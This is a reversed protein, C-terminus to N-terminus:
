TKMLLYISGDIWKGMDKRIQSNRSAIIKFNHIKSLHELYSHSHSYRGSPRLEFPKESNEVSFVLLGNNELLKSSVKFFSNLNGLYIFVDAAIILDLKSELSTMIKNVDGTLLQDYLNKESAKKIMETSLDIGTIKDTSNKFAVACLGTGCGADLAHRFKKGPYIEKTLAALKNPINYQLNNVLDDEFSSAYLNFLNGVYEEPASDTNNGQIANLMHLASVNNPDYELSIEYHKIAHDKNGSLNYIGALNYHLFAEKPSLFCAKELMEAAEKLKGSKKFLLSLNNLIDVNHSDFEFAKTLYSEARRFNGLSKYISGMLNFIQPHKLYRYQKCVEKAEELKQNSILLAILNIAADAEVKISLSSKFGEIAKEECDTGMFCIARNYVAEYFSPKLSISRSYHKIAEELKNEIRYVEALNFYFDYRSPDINIVQQFLETALTYKKCDRMLIGKLNLTEMHSPHKALIRTYAIEAKSLEGASHFNAASELESLVDM